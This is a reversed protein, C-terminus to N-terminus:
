IITIEEIELLSRKSTYNDKSKNYDYYEKVYLYACIDGTKEFVNWMIENLM